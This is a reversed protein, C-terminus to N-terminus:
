ETVLHVFGIEGKAGSLAHVSRKRWAGLRGERERTNAEPRANGHYRQNAEDSPYFSWGLEIYLVAMRALTDATIRDYTRDRSILVDYGLDVVKQRSSDWLARTAPSLREILLCFALILTEPTKTDADHDIEYRAM